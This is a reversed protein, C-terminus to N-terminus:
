VIVNNKKLHFALQSIPWTFLTSRLCNIRKSHLLCFYTRCDREPINWFCSVQLHFLNSTSM